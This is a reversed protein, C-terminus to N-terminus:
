LKALEKLLENHCQIEELVLDKFHPRIQKRQLYDDVAETIILSLEKKENKAYNRLKELVKEDMMSSFKKFKHM